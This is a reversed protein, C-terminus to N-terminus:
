QDDDKEETSRSPLRSLIEKELKELLLLQLTQLRIVEKQKDQIEKDLHGRIAQLDEHGKKEIEQRFEHPELSLIQM